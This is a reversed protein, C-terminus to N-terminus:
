SHESILLRVNKLSLNTRRQSKHYQLCCSGSRACVLLFYIDARTAVKLFVGAARVTAVSTNEATIITTRMAARTMSRVTFLEARNRGKNMAQHPETRPTKREATHNRM